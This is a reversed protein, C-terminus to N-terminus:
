SEMGEFIAQDNTVDLRYIHGTHVFRDHGDLGTTVVVVAVVEEIDRVESTIPDFDLGGLSAGSIKM